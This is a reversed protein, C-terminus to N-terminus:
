FLGKIKKFLSVFFAGILGLLLSFWNKKEVKETTILDVSVNETKNLIYGYDEESDVVIYAIGIKENKAIPAVLKGQDNLLSEDIQYEITYNSQEGKKAPLVIADKLGIKVEKEKGKTVPITPEEPLFYGASFVETIEFDTFGHDMLKASQKFRNEVSDTNMVVTILRRGNQNVTGTFNYGARTTHGTKLGDVGEYFYPKLLPADHPLMWNWNRISQDAFEFETISSIDLSEPYDNILHYALLAASKASLLNFDDKKTGEPYNDGLSENELGTANVFKFNSLGLEEGKENMLKVFDSETDAVLEALAITTANDSNIAMADYLEKVTYDYDQKLGVGSFDINESISYAYDSIKTKTDWSIVGNDIAEWILYETMIKTMSAPPLAKDPNKEYLIKGTNFDVLIASEANIDLTKAQLKDPHIFLIFFLTM